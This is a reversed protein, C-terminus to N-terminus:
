EDAVERYSIPTKTFHAVGQHCDVCYEKTMMVESVTNRHCAICNRNIVDRTEKSARFPPVEGAVNAIFDRAGEKAKFPLKEVINHPAHCQNCALDTHPSRSQLIGVEVMPHCAGTCFSRSDTYNLAGAAAILLVAGVVTGGIFIKWHGRPTSEM